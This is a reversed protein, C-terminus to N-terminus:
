TLKATLIVWGVSVKGGIVRTASGASPDGNGVPWPETVEPDTVSSTAAPATM